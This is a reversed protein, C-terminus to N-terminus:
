LIYEHLVWNSDWGPSWFEPLHNNGEIGVPFSSQRGKTIRGMKM